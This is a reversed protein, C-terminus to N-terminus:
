MELVRGEFPNSGGRDEVEIVWLDPDSKIARTIYEDATQTDVPDDGLIKFWGLENSMLDRQQILVICGAGLTDIKVLILGGAYAGKNIIYVPTANANLRAVAGEVIIGTHIRDDSM